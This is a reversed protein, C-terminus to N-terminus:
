VGPAADKAPVLLAPIDIRSLVRAATSRNWFASAGARGHTGLVIMGERREMAIRALEKAPDGRAVAATATWGGQRLTEVERALFDEAESASIDLGAETAAPLLRGTAAAEGSLTELTPVVAALHLPVGCRRAIEEGLAAGEAHGPRRDIPLLVSRLSFQAGPAPPGQPRLLLVPASGRAIVQQAINGVLVDRIGGNGHACLVILDVGYEGAHEAVSRAVDRIANEHVHCEVRLGASLMRGRAEELYARAEEANTLHRAAHVEAPAGREVAHMLIVIAGFTGALYGAPPLASEALDSGDLPVLIRCITM